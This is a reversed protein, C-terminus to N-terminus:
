LPRDKPKVWPLGKCPRVEPQEMAQPIEEFVFTPRWAPDQDDEDWGVEISRIATGDDLNIVADLSAVEEAVVEALFDKLTM